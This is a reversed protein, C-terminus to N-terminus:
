EESYVKAIFLEAERRWHCFFEIVSEDAAEIVGYFVMAGRERSRSSGADTWFSPWHKRRLREARWLRM